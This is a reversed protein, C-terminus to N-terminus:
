FVQAGTSHWTVRQFKGTKVCHIIVDCEAAPRSPAHLLDSFEKHGESFKSYWDYDITCSLTGEGYQAKLRCLIEAPKVKEKV